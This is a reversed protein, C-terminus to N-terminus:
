QQEKMLKNALPKGLFLDDLQILENETIQRYYVGKGQHSADNTMGRLYLYYIGGFHEAVDYDPLNQQLYRHLALSYILYQLDYYNKEIDDRLANYDYDNYDDGLHSSKYDCVYYKGNQEFVLDIFGHMMGKLSKYSPLRVNNQKVTTTNTNRHDTLLKELDTINAENMPFYFENERLTKQVPIDALCFTDLTDSKNTMPTKVIEDLWCVLDVDTFGTTLEGYKLLPWKTSELMNNEIVDSSKFNSHELIDHLLNGSHAGKVLQFRLLAKESKRNTVSSDVVEVSDRDPSSIGGHRLNKSLASFSSLWWDREIKGIFKSVELEATKEVQQKQSIVNSAIDNALSDFSELQLSITEPSSAVLQNLSQVIDQEPQWQLTKGLPSLAYKDFATSLIYCRREARTIAVYLLRISEAYAENAMAIKAQEDGDLSLCLQGQENHYEIYSVSKNGFKLPDNHRTAFPIFVIPYELGKAGHQTVIRILDGDSELRQETELDNTARANDDHCQQEFWYLLEQPQLFQQSASQLIEFLHLLNTLARSKNGSDNAGSFDFHQHMITIAMSIFGQRQWQERYDFFHFKLTQYASEDQQLKYLASANIGLLGCTIASLYLREDEPALIGRLLKILQEAQESDFLNARDSLFVSALNAQLLAEKIASAERGDRVLIAIDKPKIQKNDTTQEAALNTIDNKNLLSVIENACWTAMLPRVSQPVKDTFGEGTFHVFRLARGKNTLSDVKADAKKGALVPQYDIGYGFVSQKVSSETASGSFVQNYAEVVDPSSRWNTDMLWHYDCDSRANLYAFIDGGRFGYIAQKPDGILYLANKSEEDSSTNDSSVGSQDKQYYIGQLIAFQQPDTDQFEDVLAVPYQALLTQALINSTQQSSSSDKKPTQQLCDALTNILDDFDLCNLQEKTQKVQQRIQYIAGRVIQYAQAKNINKALNKVQAKIEKASDLVQALQVKFAKPHRSGNLLYDPMPYAAADLLANHDQCQAINDLWQKLKVLEEARKEQEEPKKHAVLGEDLLSTNNNLAVSAHKALQIFNAVLSQVDIVSLESRHSIAKAFSSVFATPTAWFAEVLVFNEISQKALQRYWDQTAELVLENSNTSMNANFPLGSAFAHQTLARQCFGHITFIAAEDLFLLARKLLFEIKNPNANDPNVRKDIAKFYSDQSCLTPWNNLAERIFADIRGRLEQTADKTFTMLLIEEVKLERELLLRLYIRTINYTKGTGASAEILHRGTLPITSSDLNTLTFKSSQSM